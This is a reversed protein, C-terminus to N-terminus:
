AGRDWSVSNDDACYFAGESSQGCGPAATSDFSTLKRVPRFRKGFDKPMTQTWFTSIDSMANVALKDVPTGAYGQVALKANPVGPRLGSPGETVPLGAVDAPSVDASPRARGPIPQGACASVLSVAALSLAVGALVHPTGRLKMRRGREQDEGIRRRRSGWCGVERAPPGM